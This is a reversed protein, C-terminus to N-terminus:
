PMLSWLAKMMELKFPSRDAVTPRM